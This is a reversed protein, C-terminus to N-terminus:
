KAQGLNLHGRYRAVVGVWPLAAQEEFHLQGHSGSERTILSPRLWAPCPIGCFHMRQLRLALHDQARQLLSTLCAAGLYEVVRGPQLRMQSSMSRGPFHRTWTEVDPRADLEFRIAGRSAVQPTGTCWALFKAIWSAPAATEVWGHLTHQGNLRHFRQVAAPLQEFAPGMAQQVLSRQQNKPM